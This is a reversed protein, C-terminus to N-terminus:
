HTFIQIANHQSISSSSSSSSTTTSTSTTASITNIVWITTHITIHYYTNSNSYHNGIYFTSTSTHNQHKKILHHM